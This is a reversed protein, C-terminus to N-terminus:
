MRQKPLLPYHFFDKFLAWSDGKVLEAIGQSIGQIQELARGQECRYFSWNESTTKVRGGFMKCWWTWDMDGSFLAQKCPASKKSSVVSQKVSLGWRLARRVHGIEVLIHTTSSFTFPSMLSFKISTLSVLQIKISTNHFSRFPIWSSPIHKIHSYTPLAPSFIFKVLHLITLMPFVYSLVVGWFM